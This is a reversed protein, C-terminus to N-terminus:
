QQLAHTDTKVVQQLTQQQISSLLLEFTEFAEKKYMVLPDM